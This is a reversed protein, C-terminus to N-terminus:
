NVKILDNQYETLSKIHLKFIDYEMNGIEGSQKLIHPLQLLFGINENTL